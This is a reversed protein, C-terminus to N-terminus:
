AAAQLYAALYELARPTSGRWYDWEHTGPETHVDHAIGQETFADQVERNGILTYDDESGTDLYYGARQLEEPPTRRIADAVNYHWFRDNIREDDVLDLGMGSGLVRNYEEPDMERVQDETRTSPSMGAVGSFTGPYLTAYLLAGFGGMSYGCIGRLPASGGANYTREVHPMLEQMFMDEWRFGGDADNMCYTTPQDGSDLSLDRRGDPTVVVMPPLRGDNIMTDMLRKLDCYRAWATNDDFVGHLLYVIPVPEDDPHDGPIYVTYRTDIGLIDSRM